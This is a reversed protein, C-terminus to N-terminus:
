SSGITILLLLTILVGTIFALMVICGSPQQTPADIYVIREVQRDDTILLVLALLIIATFILTTM